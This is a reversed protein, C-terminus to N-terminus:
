LAKGKAADNEECQSQEQDSADNIHEGRRKPHENEPAHKLGNTRADRKGDQLRDRHRAEGFPLVTRRHTDRTDGHPEGRVDARKDPAREDVRPSPAAEEPQEDGDDDKQNKRREEQDRAFVGRHM